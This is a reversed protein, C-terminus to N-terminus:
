AANDGQYLWNRIIAVAEDPHKAVMEEVKRISSAKVRGEIQDVNILDDEAEVQATAGSPASLMPTSASQNSLMPATAGAMGPMAAGATAPVGALLKNLVPRIVLFIVLIAIVGLGLKEALGIMESKGLGLFPEEVPTTDQEIKAFQMNVLEVTDGRDANFGIASKVLTEIKELEESTRPAYTEVGKDDKTYNGDVLVAVSLRKVTGGESVKNEITKSIEFNTTEETRQTNNNNTVGADSAGSGDPTNTFVSVAAQQPDKEVSSSKEDVTQTSRAVQEDPNYREANSVVRNFDMEAAVEARVKGAGLSSELLKEIQQATRNEFSIRMEASTALGASGEDGGDSGRALLNGKDDVISINAPKLGPVSSAVLHQIASVKQKDLGAASKLKLIIAATPDQKDQSFLRRQPLVLHVRASKVDSLAAITRSLEGELARLQNINQVFNSSGFAESRDFIEYGVSGGNPLGQEAMVMRLKAVQDGPVMIQSGDGKIQYPIKMGDLKAVIQGSDNLDLDSYLLAMNPQAMRTMIFILFGIVGALIGLVGLLRGPGLNRFTGLVGAM